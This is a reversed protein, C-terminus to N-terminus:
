ARLPPTTIYIHPLGLLIGPIDDRSSINLQGISMQPFFANRM